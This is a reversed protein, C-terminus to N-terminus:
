EELCICCERNCQEVLDEPAVRITPLQRIARASAPPARQNDSSRQQQQQQQQQQSTQVNTFNAANNTRDGQQRNAQHPNLNNGIDEAAHVVADVVNNMWPVRFFNDRPM